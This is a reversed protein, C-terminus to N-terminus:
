KLLHQSCLRSCYAGDLWVISFDDILMKKKCFGCQYGDDVVRNLINLIMEHPLYLDTRKKLVLMFLYWESTRRIPVILPSPGFVDCLKLACALTMNDMTDFEENYVPITRQGMIETKKNNTM